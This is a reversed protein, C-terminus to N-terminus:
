IYPNLCVKPHRRYKRKGTSGHGGDTVDTRSVVAKSEDLNKEDVPTSQTPCIM